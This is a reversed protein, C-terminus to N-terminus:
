NTSNSAKSRWWARMTRSMVASKKKVGQAKRKALTVEIKLPNAGENILRKRLEAPTLQNQKRKVQKHCQNCEKGIYTIRKSALPNKLWSKTQALSALRKFDKREKETNCVPCLM